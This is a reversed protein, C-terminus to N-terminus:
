RYEATRGMRWASAGMWYQIKCGGVNRPGICRYNGTVKWRNQIQKCQNVGYDKVLCLQISVSFGMDGARTTAIM